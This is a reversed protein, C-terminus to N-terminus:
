PPGPNPLTWLVQHRPQTAKASFATAASPKDFFWDAPLYILWLQVSRITIAYGSYPQNNGGEWSLRFKKTEVVRGGGAVAIQNRLQQGILSPRRRGVHPQVRWHGKIKGL